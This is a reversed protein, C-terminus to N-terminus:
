FNCAHVRERNCSAFNIHTCGNWKFAIITRRAVIVTCWGYLQSESPQTRRDSNVAKFQQVMADIKKEAHLEVRHWSISEPANIQRCTIGVSLYTRLFDFLFLAPIHLIKIAKWVFCENATLTLPKNSVRNAMKLKLKWGTLRYSWWKPGWKNRM